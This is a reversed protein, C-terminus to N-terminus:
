IRSFPSTTTTNWALVTPASNLKPGLQGKVNLNGQLEALPSYEAAHQVATAMRFFALTLDLEPDAVMLATKIVGRQTFSISAAMKKANANLLVGLADDPLDVVKLADFLRVGALVWEDVSDGPLDIRIETFPNGAAVSRAM